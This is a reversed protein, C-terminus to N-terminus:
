PTYCCLKQKEELPVVPKYFIDTRRNKVTTTEVAVCHEDIGALYPGM